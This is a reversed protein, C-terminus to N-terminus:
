QVTEQKVEPSEVEEDTYVRDVTAKLIAIQDDLIAHCAIRGDGEDVAKDILDVYLSAVMQCIANVADVGALETGHQIDSLAQAKLFSRSAWLAFSTARTVAAGLRDGAEDRVKAMELMEDLLANAETTRPYYTIVTETM